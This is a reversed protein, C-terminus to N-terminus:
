RVRVGVGDTEAAGCLRLLRYQDATCEVTLDGSAALRLLTRACHADVFGLGTLDIVDLGREHAPGGGPERAPERASEGLYREFEDRTALDATGALRLTRGHRSAHLAGLAPLVSLPHAALVQELLPAPFLRRDYECMGTCGIRPFVPTLGTEYAALARRDVGPRAAWSMDGAVRLGTFGRALAEGAVAVWYGTRAAADFGRAPDVGPPETVVALRGERVAAEASLGHAALRGLATGGAVGPETLLVVREGRALGAAVFAARVAWREEDSEFGFCTHDGVALREVAVTRPIAGTVGANGTVETGCARAGGGM